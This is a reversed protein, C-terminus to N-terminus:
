ECYAGRAPPPASSRERIANRIAIVMEDLNIPKVMFRDVGMSSLQKWEKPGGSATVVVIPMARCDERARLLATLSVGDIYPMQLDLVAVSPTGRDLTHLAARGDAAAEVEAHPFELSLKYALLERFDDDDEAILIRMPELSESRARQLACQFLEVSATRLEPKKALAQLLVADFARPLEPRMDSPLPVPETAHRVMTALEGDSEFPMHGTILEYAVCALSYVDVRPSIAADRGAFAIEPAMYAPTGVLESPTAVGNRYRASVGFDTIRVRSDAGILINSPKIDRHVTGAAHIAAVGTCVENLLRLAVDLDIPHRREALWADVTKGDVLEMVFYPLSGHTGSAYITVVNPHNVRAMARAEEMFRKRFGAGLLEPQVLKIAVKRKLRQDEAVLVVGMAGRGLEGLVRYVGGILEGAGPMPAVAGGDDDSSAEVVSSSVGGDVSAFPESLEPLTAAVGDPDRESALTVDRSSPPRDATGSHRVEITPHKRIM